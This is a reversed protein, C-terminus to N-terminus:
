GERDQVAATLSATATAPAAAWWATRSTAQIDQDSLPCPHDQFFRWMIRIWDIAPLLLYVTDTNWPGFTRLEITDDHDDNVAATKGHCYPDPKCWYNNDGAHRMNLWEAQESDLGKLAELWRRATQDVTRSVHIHGGANDQPTRPDISGVLDHLRALTDPDTALPQTQYEWGCADLSGDRSWGAILDSAALTDHDHPGDVEIELGITLPACTKPLNRYPNTYQAPHGIKDAACAKCVFGDFDGDIYTACDECLEADCYACEYRCEECMCANCQRCPHACDKCLPEDCYICHGWAPNVLCKQCKEGTKKTDTM